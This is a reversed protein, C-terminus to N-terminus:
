RRSLRRILNCSIHWPSTPVTLFRCRGPSWTTTTKGCSFIKSWTASRSSKQYLSCVPTTHAPASWFWGLATPTKQLRCHSALATSLMLKTSKWTKFGLEVWGLRIITQLREELPDRNMMVEPMFSRVTHYLDFKQKAKELSFKCGRLFTVLFQDDTRTRLHSSQKIWERLARIDSVLREPTENLELKALAALSPSLPRVNAM